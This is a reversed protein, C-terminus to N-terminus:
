ATSAFLTGEFHLEVSPNQKGATLAPVRGALYKTLGLATILRNRDLDADLDDFADLLVKTFAGHQWDAHEFSVEAGDSSTLVTINVAALGTRLATANMGLTQGNATAGGCHCADLLVLVRGFKAVALLEKRLDRM